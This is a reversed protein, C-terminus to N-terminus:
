IVRKVEIERDSANIEFRDRRFIGKHEDEETDRRGPSKAIVIEVRAEPVKRWSFRPAIM